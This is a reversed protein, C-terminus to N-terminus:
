DPASPLSASESESVRLTCGSSRTWTRGLRRSHCGDSHAASCASGVFSPVVASVSRFHTRCAARSVPWRGPRVVLSRSRSADSARSFRSSFRVFSIRLVADAYKAWAASSRRLLYGRHHRVDVSTPVPEPDLRDASHQRFSRRRTMAVSLVLGGLQYDPEELRLHNSPFSRPTRELGHLERREGSHVAEIQAPQQSRDSVDWRGLEFRLVM